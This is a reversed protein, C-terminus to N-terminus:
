LNVAYMFDKHHSQMDTVLVTVGGSKTSPMVCTYTSEKDGNILQYLMYSHEKTVLIMRYGLLNPKVTVCADLPFAINTM